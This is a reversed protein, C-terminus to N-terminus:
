VAHTPSSPAVGDRHRWQLRPTVSRAYWQVVVRYALRHSPIASSGPLHLPAM